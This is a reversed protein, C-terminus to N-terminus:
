RGALQELQPRIDRYIANGVIRAGLENTHAGDFYIPRDVGDLVTTLDIAAVGSRALVAEYRQKSDPLGAPDLKLRKWLEDDSPTPVKAFPSPQWFRVLPVGYSEALADILMSGRRYQDAALEEMVQNRRGDADYDMKGTNDPAGRIMDKEEDSIAFRSISGRRVDGLETREFAVGTENIGEYFVVLDPPPVGASLLQEFQELSQWNLFGAAGYNVARIRLGDAEAARAVVSPITHDDRQGIGFLTSGGFFWVTIEPDSPTYSVRHGDAITIYRGDFDTLHYGLMFDVKSPLTELEKFYAPAWPEDEHAYRDVPFGNWEMARGKTTASGEKTSALDDGIGTIRGVAVLGATLVATAAVAAILSWAVSRTAAPERSGSRVPDAASGDPNRSTTATAFVWASGPLPDRRRRRIAAWGRGIAGGATRVLWVPLVVFVWAGVALVLSIGHVVAVEIRQVVRDTVAAARPAVLGVVLLVVAITGVIQAGREHGLWALGVAVVAPPLARVVASRIRGIATM